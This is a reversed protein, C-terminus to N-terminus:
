DMHKHFYTYLLIIPHTKENDKQKQPNAQQDIVFVDHIFHQSLFIM